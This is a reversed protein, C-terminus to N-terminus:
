GSGSTGTGGRWPTPSPATTSSTASAPLPHHPAGQGAGRAPHALHIPQLPLSVNVGAVHELYWNLASAIAVGSSGRLVIRGAEQDVEFVDLGASDPIVEVKFDRAHGPVVREVLASIAALDVPRRPPGAVHTPAPVPGALASALLLAPLMSRIRSRRRHPAGGGDDRLLDAGGESRRRRRPHDGHVAVARDPPAPHLGGGVPRCGGAHRLRPGRQDLPLVPHPGELKYELVPVMTTKLYQQFIKQLDTGTATSM